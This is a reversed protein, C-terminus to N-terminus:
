PKLMAWLFKSAVSYSAAQQATFALMADLDNRRYTKGNTIVTEITKANAINALPNKALLLLDAMKGTEITGLDRGMGFHRAPTWTAARLAEAPTLGALVLENLEDHLGFGHAIYADMSDSGAMVAVGRTAARRTLDLSARYTKELPARDAVDTGALAVAVYGRWLLRQPLPVYMVREDQRYKGSLLHWDQGSSAVHTPVYGTGRQAMADLVANCRAADAHDLMAAKSKNRGDFPAPLVSCQPLLSMDHEVSILTGLRPDLLDATFPLHGGVRMGKAAANAIMRPLVSADAQEDLQVKIFDDGRAKLRSVIDGEVEEEVHYSTTAVIRPGLMAGAAIRKRWVPAEPVCDLDGTFSCGEGMDRVSTIGNALLLPFHLQPSLAVTHIHTDWLGPIAYKGSGDIRTAGEIRPANEAPGAYTIRNGTIVIRQGVSATGLRPDVITINDIVIPGPAGAAVSFEELPIAVGAALTITAACAILLFVKAIKRLRM